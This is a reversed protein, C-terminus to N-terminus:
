NSIAVTTRITVLEANPKPLTSIGRDFRARYIDGIALVTRCSRFINPRRLPDHLPVSTSSMASEFRITYNLGIGSDHFEGDAAVSHVHLWSVDHDTLGDDVLQQHRLGKTLPLDHTRNEGGAGTKGPSVLSVSLVM